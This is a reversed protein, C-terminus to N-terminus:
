KSCGGTRPCTSPCTMTTQAKKAQKKKKGKGAANATTSIALLTIFAYKLISKM